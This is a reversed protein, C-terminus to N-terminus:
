SGAIFFFGLIPDFTKTISSSAENRAASFPKELQDAELDLKETRSFAEEFM